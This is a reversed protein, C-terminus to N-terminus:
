GISKLFDKIRTLLTPKAYNIFYGANVYKHNIAQNLIKAEKAIKPQYKIDVVKGMRNANQQKMYLFVRDSFSLNGYRKFTYQTQKGWRKTSPQYSSFDNLRPM